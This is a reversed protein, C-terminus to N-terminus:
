FLVLFNYYFTISGEKDKKKEKKDKKEKKEKKEGKEKDKAM